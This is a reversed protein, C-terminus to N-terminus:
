TVDANRIKENYLTTGNYHPWNEQLDESCVGCLEGTLTLYPTNKTLETDSKYEAITM